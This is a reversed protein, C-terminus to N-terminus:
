NVVRAIVRVFADPIDAWAYGGPRGDIALFILITAAVVLVAAMRPSRGDTFASIMSPLSLAGLVLGVVLLLDSNIAGV